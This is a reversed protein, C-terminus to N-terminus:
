IREIRSILEKITSDLTQDKKREKSIKDCAHIVTTHDRGGFVEGIKPLSIDILERCLYMAVQRAFALDKTRKKDILDQVTVKFYTAVIQQIVELTISKTRQTQYISKMAEATLETTIPKKNISSYAVVRTLAGELERINNDIRSAIYYMVDDPVDLNELMAKKRLIAIRTELDPAQIDTILGWEFRSQLRSELLSLERPNRDSSIIIQKKANYLENFTHFFEEQTSAKKHLFQIDDILLVDITRYKQRFMQTNGEAIADILENTFKESSIYLVRLNHNKELIRNGIAQMLHTKGLGVGGYLFFPNYAAGPAEAVAKAAAHAMNNSKGIVFTDFTYKPNLTSTDGPTIPSISGNQRQDALNMQEAAYPAPADSVEFINDEKIKEDYSKEDLSIIKIDLNKHIVDSAAGSILPIYMKEIYNKLFENPTGLTLTDDDISVPKIPMILRNMANETISERLANVTKGWAEFLEKQEM